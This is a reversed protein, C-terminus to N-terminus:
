KKKIFLLGIVLTVSLIVIMIIWKGKYGNSSVFEEEDIKTAETVKVKITYIEKFEDKSITITIKNDELEEIKQNSVQVEYSDDKIVPKLDLEKVKDNVKVTYDFVNEKLKINVIESDIRELLNGNTEEPEQEKDETKTEEKNTSNNNSNNTNNTNNSNNTNANNANNSNNSNNTSEDKKDSNNVTEDEKDEEKDDSTDVEEKDITVKISQTNLSITVENNDNGNASIPIINVLGSKDVPNDIVNINITGLTVTGSVSSGFDITHTTTSVNDTYGSAVKFNAPASNSTYVLKFKLSTIEVGEGLNASLTIQGSEGSKITIENKDINLAEVKIISLFIFTVIFLMKKCISIIRKM